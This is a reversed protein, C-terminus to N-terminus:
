PTEGSEGAKKRGERDGERKRDRSEKGRKGMVLSIIYNKILERLQAEGNSHSRERTCM